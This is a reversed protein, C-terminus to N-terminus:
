AQSYFLLISVQSIIVKIGHPRQLALRFGTPAGYDFVYVAFEKVTLVDLWEGIVSAMNAFTHQYNRPTTTFGFGPLDPALVHYKDALIPILHRYQNSSTPFGHLLLITPATNEGASIYHVVAGSPVSVSHYTGIPSMM